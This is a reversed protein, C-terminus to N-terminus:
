QDKNMLKKLKASDAEYKKRNVQNFIGMEEKSLKQWKNRITSPRHKLDDLLTILLQSYKSM